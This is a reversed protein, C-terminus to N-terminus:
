PCGRAPALIGGVLLFTLFFALTRVIDPRRSAPVALMWVLSAIVTPTAVCLSTWLFGAAIEGHFQSESMPRCPVPWFIGIAALAAAAFYGILLLRWCQRARPGRQQLSSLDVTQGCEPCATPLELGALNYGCELCRPSSQSPRKPMRNEISWGHPVAVLIGKTRGTTAPMRPTGSERVTGRMQVPVPIDPLDPATPPSPPMHSPPPWM